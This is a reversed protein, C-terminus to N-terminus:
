RARPTALRLTPSPPPPLKPVASVPPDILSLLLNPVDVVMNLLSRHTVITKLTAVILQHQWAPSWELFAFLGKVVILFIYHNLGGRDGGGSM